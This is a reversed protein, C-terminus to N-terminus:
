NEETVTEVFAKIYPLDEEKATAVVSIVPAEQVARVAELAKSGVLRIGYAKEAEDIGDAAAYVANEGAYTGLAESLPMLYGAKALKMFEEEDSIVLNVTGAIMYTTFRQLNAAGDSTMTEDDFYFSDDIEVTQKSSVLGLKESLESILSATAEDDWYDNVVAVSVVAEPKPALMQWLLSGAFVVAVIAAVMKLLYYDKFYALKQRFDMNEWKERETSDAGEHRYIEAGESLVSEKKM